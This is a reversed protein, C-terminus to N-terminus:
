FDCINKHSWSVVQNPKRLQLNSCPNVLRANTTLNSQLVIMLKPYKLDVRLVM